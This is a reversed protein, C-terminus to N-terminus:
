TTGIGVVVLNRHPNYVRVVNSQCSGFVVWYVGLAIVVLARYCGIRELVLDAHARGLLFFLATM